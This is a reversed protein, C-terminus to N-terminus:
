EEIYLITFEILFVRGNASTTVKTARIAATDQSNRLAMFRYEMVFDPFGEMRFHSAMIQGNLPSDDEGNPNMWGMCDVPGDPAYLKGTFM